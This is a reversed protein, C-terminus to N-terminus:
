LDKAIIFLDKQYRYLLTNTFTVMLLAVGWGTGHIVYSVIGKIYGNHERYDLSHFNVHGINTTELMQVGVVSGEKVM